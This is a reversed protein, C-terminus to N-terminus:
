SSQPTCKSGLEAAPGTFKSDFMTYSLLEDHGPRVDSMLSMLTTEMPHRVRGRLGLMSDFADKALRDIKSTEQLTPGAFVVDVARYGKTGNRNRLTWLDDIMRDTLIARLSLAATGLIDPPNAQGTSGSPLPLREQPHSAVVGIREAGLELAPKIPTNLLLGGDIYGGRNEGTIEVPQFLIPIAASALLHDVGLTTSVYRINRHADYGPLRVDDAHEVFVVTGGTALSTTAVAVARVKGARVNEHLRDWPVLAELSARMPSTDLLGAPPPVPLGILRGLTSGGTRLLTGIPSFVDTLEAGSWAAVVEKAAQEGGLDAYAALGAVNLAGASTGVLIPPVVEDPALVPLLAQVAGAEYAGRAGAGSVVLATRQESKKSM